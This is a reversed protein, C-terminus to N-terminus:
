VWLKSQSTELMLLKAYM